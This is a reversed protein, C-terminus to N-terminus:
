GQNKAGQEKTRDLRHLRRTYGRSIEPRIRKRYRINRISQGIVMQAKFQSRITIETIFAVTRRVKKQSHM